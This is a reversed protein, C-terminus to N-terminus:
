PETPHYLEDSTVNLRWELEKQINELSAIVFSTQPPDFILRVRIYMYTKVMNLTTEDNTFDEWEASDDEISFGDVPGVGVQTLVNFISNIFLILEQDFVDYDSQLGLAKKTSQLISEAM